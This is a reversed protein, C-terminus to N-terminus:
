SPSAVVHSSKAEESWFRYILTLNLAGLTSLLPDPLHDFMSRFPSGRPRELELTCCLATVGLNRYDFGSERLLKQIKLKTLPKFDHFAVGRSWRLYLSRLRSPLWSLFALGEHPEALMWGNPVALYGIRNPRLVRHLEALHARQAQEDGVHESIHNTLVVGFFIDAFPQQTGTVQHYWCGEAILRNDYVDVADMECRLQPHTGFYNAIGDSGTSVELMRM